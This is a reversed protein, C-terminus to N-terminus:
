VKRDNVDREENTHLIRESTAKVAENQFSMGCLIRQLNRIFRARVAGEAKRIVRLRADVEDLEARTLLLATEYPLAFAGVISERAILRQCAREALRLHGKHLYSVSE